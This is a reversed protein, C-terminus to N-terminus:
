RKAKLAATIKDPKLRTGFKNKGDIKLSECTANFQEVARALWADAGVGEVLPLSVMLEVQKGASVGFRHLTLYPAADFKAKWVVTRWEDGDLDDRIVALGEYKNQYVGDSIHRVTVGPPVAGASLAARATQGAREAEAYPIKLHAYGHRPGDVHRQEAWEAPLSFTVAGELLSTLREDQAPAAQALLLIFALSHATRRLVSTGLKM